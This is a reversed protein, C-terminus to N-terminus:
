AISILSLLLGDALLIVPRLVIARIIGALLWRLIIVAISIVHTLSDGRILRLLLDVRRRFTIRLRTGQFPVRAIDLFILLDNIGPM